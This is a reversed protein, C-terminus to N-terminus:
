YISQFNPGSLDGGPPATDIPMPAPQPPPPQPADVPEAAPPPPDYALAAKAAPPRDVPPQPRDVPAPQPRDVPGDDGRAPRPWPVTSNAAVRMEDYAQQSPPSGPLDSPSWPRDGTKYYFSNGGAVLVYHMNHYPFTYGTTHFFMVHELGPMRAGALVEDAVRLARAKGKGEFPRTLAGPAFQNTQGVTGCISRPYRGSEIRNMVVTGVSLMGEDSSRLSEFFMVRALCQREDTEAYQQLSPPAACGALGSAALALAPIRL